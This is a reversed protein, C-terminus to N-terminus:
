VEKGNKIARAIITMNPTPRIPIDKYIIEPAFGNKEVIDWLTAPNYGFKHQQGPGDAWGFIMMMMSNFMEPIDMLLGYANIVAECDPCMIIMLGNDKLVRWWEKLAAICEVRDFHEFLNNSYVLGCSNDEYELVLADMKVDAFDNYKDINIMGEFTKGGCGLNLKLDEAAVMLDQLTDAIDKKNDAKAQILVM